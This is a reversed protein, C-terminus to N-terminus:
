SAGRPGWSNLLKTTTLGSSAAASPSSSWAPTSPSSTDRLTEVGDKEPMMMDLLGLDPRYEWFLLVGERGDRAGVVRYGELHLAERLLNRFDPSDDILLITAHNDADLSSM